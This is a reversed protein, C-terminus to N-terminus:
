AVARGDGGRRAVLPQARGGTSRATPAGAAALPAAAPDASGHGDGPAPPSFAPKRGRGPQIKLGDEGEALYRRVWRAVTERRRARLLGGDAVARCSGGAAVKLIAAAQERRRPTPSRDRWDTLEAVQADTLVIRTPAPM